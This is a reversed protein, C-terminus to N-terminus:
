DAAPPVPADRGGLFEDFLAEASILYRPHPSDPYLVTARLQGSRCLARVKNGSIGLLRGVEDPSLAARLDGEFEVLVGRTRTPTAAALAGPLALANV